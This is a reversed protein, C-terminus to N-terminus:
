KRRWFKAVVIAGIIAGGALIGAAPAPMNVVAFAPTATLATLTISVIALDFGRIKLIKQM